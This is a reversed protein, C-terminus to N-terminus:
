VENSDVRNSNDSSRAREVLKLFNEEFKHDDESTRAAPGKTRGGARRYKAKLSREELLFDINQNSYIRGSPSIALAGKGLVLAALGWDQTDVIDGKSANNVVALDAADAGKGVMIHDSNDVHHDVSAVTLLRYKSSKKHRQLVQLCMRPCADADVIVKFM